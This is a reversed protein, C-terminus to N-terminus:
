RCLVLVTETWGTAVRALLVGVAALVLAVRYLAVPSAPAATVRARPL